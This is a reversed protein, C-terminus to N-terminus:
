FRIVGSLYFGKFQLDGRDFDVEYFVEVSRYGAQVGVNKTANWTAYFDYDFYRGGYEESLSEPVKFFTMEGTVSVQNTAYVRGTGGFSPIPAGQKTYEVGLPSDLEVSVDTYKLDALVGLYGRERHIFDYEYGVRWTTLTAETTVPLGVRYRLANFVFERQIVTDATYTIPLYHVRFKHKRAPRLVLRAEWLLKNEIGLDKILDVDTGAIGLSESSIIFVPTPRWGLVALEIRYDEGGPPTSPPSYQAAVPLVLWPAAILVVALSLVRTTFLRM